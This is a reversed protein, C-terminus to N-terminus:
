KWTHAHMVIGNCILPVSLYVYMYICTFTCTHACTYVYVQIEERRLQSSKEPLADPTEWQFKESKWNYYFAHGERSQHEMWGERDDAGEQMKEERAAALSSTYDAACEETISRINASPAQLALLTAAPDGSEVAQNIATVAKAVTVVSNNCLCTLQIFTATNLVLNPCNVVALVACM